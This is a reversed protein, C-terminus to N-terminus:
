RPEGHVRGKAVFWTRDRHEVEITLWGFLALAKPLEKWYSAIYSGLHEAGGATYGRGTSGSYGFGPGKAWADWEANGLHHLILTEGQAEVCEQRWAEQEATYVSKHYHQTM